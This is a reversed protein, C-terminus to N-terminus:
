KKFSKLETNSLGCAQCKYTLLRETEKDVMMEEGCCACKTM